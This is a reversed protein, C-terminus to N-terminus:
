DELKKTVINFNSSLEELKNQENMVLNLIPLFDKEFTYIGTDITTDITEKMDSICLEEIKPNISNIYEKWKKIDFSGNSYINSIRNITNIIKM